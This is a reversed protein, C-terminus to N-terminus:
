AFEAPASTGDCSHPNTMEPPTGLLADGTMYSTVLVVRVVVVQDRTRNAIMEGAGSAILPWILPVSVM